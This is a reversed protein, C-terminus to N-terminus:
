PVFSLLFAFLAFAAALDVGLVHLLVGVCVGYGLCALGKLIIYRKFLEEINNGIPMPDSLWFAIYLAMMLFEGVSRGANSLIETVLASLLEEARMLANNAIEDVM